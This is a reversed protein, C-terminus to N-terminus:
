KNEFIQVPFLHQCTVSSYEIITYGGPIFIVAELIVSTVIENKLLTGRNM